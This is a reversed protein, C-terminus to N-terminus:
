GITIYPELAAYKKDGIGSVRKLDEKSAFPGNAERDAIIKEATSPGVGNLTQLEESTAKNINVLGNVIASSSQPVDIESVTSEETASPISIQEGDTVIRALNLVQSDADESFGGAAEVADYVRSDEKLEYIGPNEVCGTVHVIVTARYAEESSVLSDNANIQFEERSAFASQALFSACAAIVAALLLALGLVMPKNVNTLHLKAFVSESTEQFAM